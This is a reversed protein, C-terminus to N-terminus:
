LFANEITELRETLVEVITRLADIQGFLSDLRELIEVYQLSEESHRVIELLQSNTKDHNIDNFQTFNLVKANNKFIKNSFLRVVLLLLYM